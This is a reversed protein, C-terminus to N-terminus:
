GDSQKAAMFMLRFYFLNLQSRDIVVCNYKGFWSDDTFSTIIGNEIKWIL